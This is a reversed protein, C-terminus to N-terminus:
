WGIAISSESHLKTVNYGQDRIYDELMDQFKGDLVRAIKVHDKKARKAYWIKDAIYWCFHNAVDDYESM